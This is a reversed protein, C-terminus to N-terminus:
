RETLELFQARNRLNQAETLWPHSQALYTLWMELDDESRLLRRNIPHITKRLGESLEKMLPMGNFVARSFGAGLLFIDRM